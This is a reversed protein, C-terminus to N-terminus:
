FDGDDDMEQDDQRKSFMFVAVLALLGIIVVGFGIPKLNSGAGSEEDEDEEEDKDEDDDQDADEQATQDDDDSEDTTDEQQDEADENDVVPRNVPVPSLGSVQISAYAYNGGDEAVRFCYHKGNERGSLNHVKNGDAFGRTPVFAQESCGGSDEVITVQWNPNNLTTTTTAQLTTGNQTLRIEPLEGPVRETEAMEETDETEETDEETMEMDTVEQVITVRSVQYSAYGTNNNRDTVKFCYWFGNDTPNLTLFRASPSRHGYVLSDSQCDPETNFPGANQWTNEDVNSDSAVVELSTNNQIFSLVPALDPSNDITIVGQQASASFPMVFLCLAFSLLVLLLILFRKNISLSNAKM